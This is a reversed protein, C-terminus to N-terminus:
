GQETFNVGSTNQDEWAKFEDLEDKLSSILWIFIAGDDIFGGPLFDFYADIPSVLYIFATIILLVKKPHINRYEGKAYARLLRYFLQATGYAEKLQSRGKEMKLKARDLLYNLKFKDDLYDGARLRFKEFYSKKRDM